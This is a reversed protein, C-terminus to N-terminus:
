FNNKAVKSINSTDINNLSQLSMAYPECDYSRCYSLGDYHFLCFWMHPALNPSTHLFVSINVCKQNTRKLDSSTLLMESNLRSKLTNESYCTFFTVFQIKLYFEPFTIIHKFFFTIKKGRKWKILSLNINIRFCNLSIPLM